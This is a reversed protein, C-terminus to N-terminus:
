KWGKEIVGAVARAKFQIGEPSFHIPDTHLKEMNLMQADLDILESGERRAVERTSANIREMFKQFNASWALDTRSFPQTMVLVRAGDGRVLKIMAEMNREYIAAVKDIEWPIGGLNPSPRLVADELSPAEPIKRLAMFKWKLLAYSNLYRVLAGDPPLPPPTLVQYAHRYDSLPTGYWTMKFENAGEHLIVVDPRYHRVILSYNILSNATTWGNTGFNMVEVARGPHARRLTDEVWYPYGDETTSGGLCAVRLLAPPKERKWEPGFFGLSNVGPIKPNKTYLLFPHAIFRAPAEQRQALRFERLRDRQGTFGIWATAGLEMLLYFSLLAALALALRLRLPSGQSSGRRRLGRALGALVLADGLAVLALGTIYPGVIAQPSVRHWLPCFALGLISFLIGLPMAVRM